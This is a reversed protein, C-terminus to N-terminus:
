WLLFPFYGMEAPVRILVRNSSLQFRLLFSTGPAWRSGSWTGWMWASAWWPGELALWWAPVAIRRSRLWRALSPLPAAGIAIVPPAGLPMGGTSSCGWGGEAVASGGGGRAFAWSAGRRLGWNHICTEGRAACACPGCLRQGSGTGGTSDGSISASKLATKHFAQAEKLGQSSFCSNSTHIENVHKVIDATVTWVGKEMFQVLVYLDNEEPVAMPKLSGM